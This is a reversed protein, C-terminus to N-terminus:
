AVKLQAVIKISLKSKDLMPVGSLGLDALLPKLYFLLSFLLTTPLHCYSQLMNIRICYTRCHMVNNDDFDDELLNDGCNVISFGLM